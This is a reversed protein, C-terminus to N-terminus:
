KQTPNVLCLLWKEFRQVTELHHAGLKRRLNAIHVDVTRELTESGKIAELLELRTFVRGRARLFTVLLDFEAPRLELPIAELQVERTELNLTLNFGYLMTESPNTVRKLM